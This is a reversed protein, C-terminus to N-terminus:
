PLPEGAQGVAGPADPLVISALGLIVASAGVSWAAVRWGQTKLAALMSVLVIALALAAM